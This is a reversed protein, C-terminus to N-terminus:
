LRTRGLKKRLQWRALLAERRVNRLQPTAAAIASVSMKIKTAESHSYGSLKGAPRNNYIKTTQQIWSQERDILSIRNMVVELLIFDWDREKTRNWHGQMFKNHHDGRNLANKHWGLRAQVFISSGIYLRGTRKHKVAYVGMIPKRPTKTFPV